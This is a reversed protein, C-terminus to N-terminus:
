EQVEPFDNAKPRFSPVGIDVASQVAPATISSVRPSIYHKPGVATSYLICLREAKTAYHQKLRSKEQEESLVREPERPPGLLTKRVRQDIVDLLRPDGLMGAHVVTAYTGDAAIVNRNPANSTWSFQFGNRLVEVPAPWAFGSARLDAIFRVAGIRTSRFSVAEPAPDQTVTIRRVIEQECLKMSDIRQSQHWNSEPGFEGASIAMAREATPPGETYLALVDGLNTPPVTASELLKQFGDDPFDELEQAETWSSKARSWIFTKTAKPGTRTSRPKAIGHHFVKTAQLLFARPRYHFQLAHARIPHHNTYYVGHRHNAKIADDSIDFEPPRLYWASGGINKWDTNKGDVANFSSINDAWNLCLLETDGGFEFLEQRYRKYTIHRPSNNLQVHVLLLGQYYKTILERNFEFVDSCVLTILRVEGPLRGFMFISRGPLMGTAETNGPDGSPATKYQVLVVLRETVLDEDNTKFVYVLPNRYQQTTREIPSSDDDLVKAVPELRQRIEPLKGLPLSECGLVWLKGLQPVIGAEISEILTDWPVSYEPCILVDPQTLNVQRFFSLMRGKAEASDANGIFNDKILIRGEPQLTMVNYLTDDAQLASLKPHRLGSIQLMNEVPVIDLPVGGFYLPVLRVICSVRAPRGAERTTPLFNFASFCKFM